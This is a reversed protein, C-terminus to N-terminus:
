RFDGNKFSDIAEVSLRAIIKENSEEPLSLPTELVPVSPNKQVEEVPINQSVQTMVSAPNTIGAQSFSAELRVLDEQEM